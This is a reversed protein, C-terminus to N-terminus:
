PMEQATARTATARRRPPSPCSGNHGTSGATEALGKFVEPDLRRFVAVGKHRLAEVEHDELQYSHLGVPYASPEALLERLMEQRRSPPLFDWDFLLADFQGHQPIEEFSLPYLCTGWDEALRRALDLNVEDTTLYALLM